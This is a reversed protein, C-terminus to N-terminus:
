CIEREYCVSNVITTISLNKVIERLDFLSYLTFLLFVPCYHCFRCFRCFPYSGLSAREIGAEGEEQKLESTGFAWVGLSSLHYIICGAAASPIALYFFSREDESSIKNM